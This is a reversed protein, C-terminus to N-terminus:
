RVRTQLRRRTAFRGSMGQQKLIARRESAFFSRATQAKKIKAGKKKKKKTSAAIIAEMARNVLEIVAEKADHDADLQTIALTIETTSEEIINTISM